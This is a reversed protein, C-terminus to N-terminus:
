QLNIEGFVSFGMSLLGSVVFAAGLGQLPSPIVSYRLRERLAAFLVVALAWGLGNAFGFAVSEPLSLQKQVMFLSSGLIACNVTILPLFIGMTDYLAPFYKELFLELIQVSAAIVAIFCVLKLHGLDVTSYGAWSLAGKSLLYTQM